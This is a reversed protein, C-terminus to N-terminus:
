CERIRLRRRRRREVETELFLQLWCPLRRGERNNLHNDDDEVVEEGDDDSDTTPLWHRYLPCVANCHLWQFICHQHFIHSYSMARLMSTTTMTKMEADTAADEEQDPRPGALAKLFIACDDDTTTTTTTTTTLVLPRTPPPSALM